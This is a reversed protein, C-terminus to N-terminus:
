DTPLIIGYIVTHFILFTQFWWGAITRSIDSSSGMIIGTEGCKGLEIRMKSSLDDWEWHNTIDFFIRHNGSSSGLCDWRNGM